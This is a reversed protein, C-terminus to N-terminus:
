FDLNSSPTGKAQREARLIGLTRYHDFAGNTRFVKLFRDVDVRLNALDRALDLVFSMQDRGQGKLNAWWRQGEPSSSELLISKELEKLEIASPDLPRAVVCDRNDGAATATERRGLGRFESPTVPDRIDRLPKRTEPPGGVEGRRGGLERSGGFETGM